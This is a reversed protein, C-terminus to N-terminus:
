EKGLLKQKKDEKIISKILSYFKTKLDNYEKLYTGIEKSLARHEEKYTKEEELDNIGDVMIELGNEHKIVKKILTKVTKQSSDIDDAMKRLDTFVLHAMIKETYDTVLHLFFYHEDKIFRLESIWQRSTLHMDEANIWEIFRAHTKETIM